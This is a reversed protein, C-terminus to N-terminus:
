GLFVRALQDPNPILLTAGHVELLGERKFHSFLRTVPPTPRLSGDLNTGGPFASNAGRQAAVHLPLYLAACALALGLAM